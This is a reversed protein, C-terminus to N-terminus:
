DIFENEILNREILENIIAGKVFVLEDVDTYERHFDIVYNKIDKKHYFAIGEKYFFTLDLPCAYPEIVVLDGNKECFIELNKKLHYDSYKLLSYLFYVRFPKSLIM